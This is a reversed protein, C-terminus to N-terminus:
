GYTKIIPDQSERLCERLHELDKAWYILKHCDRQSNQRMKELGDLRRAIEIKMNDVLGDDFYDLVGQAAAAPHMFIWSFKSDHLFNQLPTSVMYELWILLRLSEQVLDTLPSLDVPCPHTKQVIGLDSGKLTMSKVPLDIFNLRDHHLITWNQCVTNDIMTHYYGEASSIEILCTNCKSSIVQRLNELIKQDFYTILFLDFTPLYLGYLPDTSNGTGFIPASIGSM